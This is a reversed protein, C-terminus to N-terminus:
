FEVQLGTAALLSGWGSATRWMGMGPHVHAWTCMGVHVHGPVCAGMCMCVCVCMRM